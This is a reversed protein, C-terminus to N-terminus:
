YSRIRIPPSLGIGFAVRRVTKLTKANSSLDNRVQVQAELEKIKDKQEKVLEPLPKLPRLEELEAFHKDIKQNAQALEAQYRELKENGNALNVELKAAAHKAENLTDSLKEVQEQRARSAEKERALQELPLAM